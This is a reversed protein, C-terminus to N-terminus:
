LDKQIFAIKTFQIWGMDLADLSYLICFSLLNRECFTFHAFPQSADFSVGDVVVVFFSVLDFDFQNEILCFGYQSKRDHM